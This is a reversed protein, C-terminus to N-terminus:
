ASAPQAARAEVARTMRLLIDEIRRHTAEVMDAPLRAVSERVPRAYDQFAEAAEGADVATEALFHSVAELAEMKPRVGRTLVEAQARPDFMRAVAQLWRLAGEDAPVPDFDFHCVTGFVEGSAGTLPVGCYAHVVPRKAHGKVRPDLASDEVIFADRMRSVYDCYSEGLAISDWRAAGGKARDYVVLNNLTEGAIRYLATFRYPGLANLLETAKAFEGQALLFQLQDLLEPNSDIGYM